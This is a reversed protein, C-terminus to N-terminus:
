ACQVTNTVDMLALNTFGIIANMPTRIDHSMNSLFMTKARSQAAATEKESTEINGVAYALGISFGM